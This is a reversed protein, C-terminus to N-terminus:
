QINKLLQGNDRDFLDYFNHMVVIIAKTTTLQDFM